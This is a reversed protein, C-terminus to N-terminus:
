LQGRLTSLLKEVSKKGRINFADLSQDRMHTIGRHLEKAHNIFEEMLSDNLGAKAYVQAPTNQKSLHGIQNNRLTNIRLWTPKMAAELNQLKPVARVDIGEHVLLEKILSPFSIRDDKTELFQYCSVVCSEFNAPITALFFELHDNLVQVNAPEQRSLELARWVDFHLQASSITDALGKIQEEISLAM